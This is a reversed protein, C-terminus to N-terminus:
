GCRHLIKPANSKVIREFQDIAKDYDNKFLYADGLPHRHMANTPEIELARSAYKIAEDYQRAYIAATAASVNGPLSIPDLAQGKQKEEFAANVEGVYFL